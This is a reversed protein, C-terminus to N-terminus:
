VCGRWMACFAFPGMKGWQISLLIVLVFVCRCSNLQESSFWVRVGERKNEVVVRQPLTPQFIPSAWPWWAAEHRLLSKFGLSLGSGFYYLVQDHSINFVHDYLVQMWKALHILEAVHYVYPRSSPHILIWPGLPFLTCTHMESCTVWKQDCSSSLLASLFKHTMLWTLDSQNNHGVSEIARLDAMEEPSPIVTFVCMLHINKSGGM